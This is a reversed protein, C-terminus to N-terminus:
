KEKTTNNAIIGLLDIIINNQDTILELSIKVRAKHRTEINVDRPIDYLSSYYKTLKESKAQELDKIKEVEYAM